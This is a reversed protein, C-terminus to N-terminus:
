PNSFGQAGSVSPGVNPTASGLNASHVDSSPVTSDDAKAKFDRDPALKCAGSPSVHSLNGAQSSMASSNPASSMTVDHDSTKLQANAEVQASESPEKDNETMGASTTGEVPSTEVDM